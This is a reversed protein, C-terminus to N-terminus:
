GLGVEVREVELLQDLVTPSIAVLLGRQGGNIYITELEFITKEAYIPLKKKTGFPSTGGVLYGSHKQAVEPKCPGISKVGLHRALSKTSVELTGHMLVILPRKDQDEFLLTKIVCTEPVGLERSSVATGGRAEYTYQHIVFEVKAGRLARLAGTSPNKAKGM